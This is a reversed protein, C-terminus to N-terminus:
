SGQSSLCGSVICADVLNDPGGGTATKCNSGLVEGVLLEIPHLTPKSYPQKAQAQDEHEM